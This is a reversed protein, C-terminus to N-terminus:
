HAYRIVFNIRYCFNFFNPYSNYCPMPRADARSNARRPILTTTAAREPSASSSKTSFHVWHSGATFAAFFM